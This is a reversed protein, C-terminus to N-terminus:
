QAGAKADNARKVVYSLIADSDKTALTKGFGPMGRAAREGDIVIRHWQKQDRLLASYRLDPAIAGEGAAGNAGHCAACNGGYAQAGAAIQGEGQFSTRM